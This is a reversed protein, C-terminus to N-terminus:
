YNGILHNYGHVFGDEDISKTIHTANQKLVDSGNEMAYSVNALKFMELDNNGDGFAAIFRDEGDLYKLIGKAKNVGPNVIEIHGGISCFSNVDFNLKVEEVILEYEALSTAEIKYIDENVESLFHEISEFESDVNKLHELLLQYEEEIYQGRIAILMQNALQEIDDIFVRHRKDKTSVTIQNTRGSLFKVIPLVLNRDLCKKDILKNDKIIEAGNSAVCDGKFGFKRVEHFPRGTCILYDAVDNDLINFVQPNVKDGINLVTGDLDICILKKM